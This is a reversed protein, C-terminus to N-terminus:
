ERQRAEEEQPESKKQRAIIRQLQALDTKNALVLLVEGGDLVTTGNPIVFGEGKSILVVLCDKPIGIEFIRKGVVEANYPVLVDVIDADIGEVEDLELPYANNAKMPADVGLWRAVLPFTTGQILVSTVVIFFVLQFMVNAQNIGALMPFTALIIPAAGRLGMWAIMGKERNSFFRTPLSLWVSAPRAILILFLSILLGVGLYPILQKPEVMLGLSLFMAIQMLWALGEHFRKLTKKHLFRSNGLVMGAMYVALFGNGHVTVTVAYTLLVLAITLVPYLGEYELKIRNIVYLMLKPMLYGLLAGLGMDLIFSPILHLLNKDDAGMISILGVTLFVAMPDNSGSEFELLPRLHGKLGIRRSRLVSFVAAADTSSVIAGLLLGELWSWHLTVTAFWGILIATVLVGVTALSIGRLVIPKVNEWRTDLGGSFIIFILALIGISKAALPDHFRIGGLGEWGAAMGVALFLLLAPIGFKGSAKSTLVSVLLLIAVTLILYEISFHM